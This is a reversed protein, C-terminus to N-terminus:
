FANKIKPTNFEQKNTYKAIDISNFEEACVIFHEIINSVSQKSYSHKGNAELVFM